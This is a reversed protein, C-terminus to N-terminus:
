GEAINLRVTNTRKRSAVPITGTTIYVDGSKLLDNKMLFDQIDHLADDTSEFKEYYFARVGWVLALQSLLAKNGTFIFISATPRYRAINFATYGTVTMGTIAKANTDKALQCSSALVRDNYFTDSDIDFDFNRYFIGSINDEVSKIIRAMSRVALAPYNGSATEASLMVADAGDM